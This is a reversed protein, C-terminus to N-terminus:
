GGKNYVVYKAQRYQENSIPLTWYDYARGSYLAERVCARKMLDIEYDSLPHSPSNQGEVYASFGDVECYVFHNGGRHPANDTYQDAQTVSVTLALLAGAVFPVVRTFTVRLLIRM